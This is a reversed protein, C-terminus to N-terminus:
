CTRFSIFAYGMKLGLRSVATDTCFGPVGIKREVWWGGCVRTVAKSHDGSPKSSLCVKQCSVESPLTRCAKIPKVKCTKHPKRSSRLLKLVWISSFPKRPSGYKGGAFGVFQQGRSHGEKFRETGKQPQSGHQTLTSFTTPQYTPQSGRIYFSWKDVQWRSMAWLLPHSFRYKCHAM